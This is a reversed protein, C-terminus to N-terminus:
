IMLFYIHLVSLWMLRVYSKFFHFLTKKVFILLTPLWGGWRLSNVKITFDFPNWHLKPEFNYWVFKGLMNKCINQHLLRKMCLKGYDKTHMENYRHLVDIENKSQKNKVMNFEQTELPLIAIICM